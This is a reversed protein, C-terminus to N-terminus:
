IGYVFIVVLGVDFILQLVGGINIVLLFMLYMVFFFILLGFFCNFIVKDMVVIFCSLEVILINSVVDCIVVIIQYCVDVIYLVLDDIEDSFNVLVIDLKDVVDGVYVWSYIDGELMQLGLWCWQWILIQVLMQQVLLDVECLLLQLYYVLEFDSNVQYCDFVIKLVEIGWGCILVLLIVLCGFCVVFVDIDIWVQQKEVIDLMNLVVVCFIGLEFLQLMLYFNCEFNFVDVVNILMDVDGSLIYYCVIQEDLLIQLFIIILFYIGLFDVLM